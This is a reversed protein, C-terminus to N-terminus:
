SLEGERAISELFGELVPGVVKADFSREFRQRAATSLQLLREEDELLDILVRAAAPPDDLPWVLGEVGPEFVEPIGGVDSSVVPLGSAMAEIFVMGFPERTAAHVLVRHGSLQTQVDLRAGLFRVQDAVGLSRAYRELRHRCPGEGILDLTLRRGMQNATHVVDLLFQQNKRIQLSGVAILDATDAAKSITRGAPNAQIASLPDAVFNPIVASRVSEVGNVHSVVGQRASESVYVVGDVIPLVRRELETTRRYVRGGRRLKNMNAWEDAQSVDFHIALVVRQTPDRRVELAALASLPCQAYVVASRFRALERELARRLFVYHWYRYWAVSAAGSVPELLLRRVGFIPTSLLGGWSFPTVLIFPHGRGALFKCTERVHTQVGTTGVARMMSVVLIPVTAPPSQGMSTSLHRVDALQVAPLDDKLCTRRLNDGARASRFHSVVHEVTLDTVLDRDSSSRLAHDITPVEEVHLRGNAQARRGTPVGSYLFARLEERGGVLLVDTGSEALEGLRKGPQVVSHGLLRRAQWGLTRFDGRTKWTLRRVKWTFRRARRNLQPYRRALWRVVDQRQSDSVIARQPICFRRRSDLKGGAAIEPPHFKVVPNFACVGRASLISAAELVQYASSCLGFLVVDSPDSPSVARATDIVDDIASASFVPQCSKGDRAPSNGFGNLDVRVCQFGHVALDRSLEVWLRGPGIRHENSVSVFICM